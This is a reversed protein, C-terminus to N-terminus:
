DRARHDHPPESIPLAWAVFAARHATRDGEGRSGPLPTLPSPSLAPRFPVSTGTRALSVAEGWGEGGFRPLPLWVRDREKCLRLLGPACPRSQGEGRGGGQAVRGRGPSRFPSRPVRM